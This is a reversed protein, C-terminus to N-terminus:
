RPGFGQRYGVRFGARYGAQYEARPGLAPTYGPPPEELERQGELDWGRVDRDGKGAKRGDILGRDYGAQYARSNRGATEGPGGTTAAPVTSTWGKGLFEPESIVGDGNSDVRRFTAPDSPWEARSVVGDNNGDEQRFAQTLTSLGRTPAVADNRQAGTAQQDDNTWIEDGALIGDGNLDHQEFSRANGRWEARTIVGDGNRDMAQFRMQRGQKAQNSKPAQASARQPGSPAASATLPGAVVCSLLAAGVYRTSRM